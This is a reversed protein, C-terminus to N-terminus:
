KHFISFCHFIVSQSGEVTSTGCLNELTAYKIVVQIKRIKVASAVTLRM